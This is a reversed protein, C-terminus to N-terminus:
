LFVWLAAIVIVVIAIIPAALAVGVLQGQEKGQTRLYDTDSPLGGEAASRDLTDGKDDRHSTANPDTM